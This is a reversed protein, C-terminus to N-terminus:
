PYQSGGGSPGPSSPPRYGSTCCIHYTKCKVWPPTETEEIVEPDEMSYWYYEMASSYEECRTQDASLIRVIEVTCKAVAINRNVGTGEKIIWGSYEPVM